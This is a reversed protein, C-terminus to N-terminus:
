KRQARLAGFRRGVYRAMALAGASFALWGFVGAPTFYSLLMAGAVLNGFGWYVNLEPPSDGVGPPKAFPSPFPEGTVGKVFHPVGNALFVGSLFQLVYAYWSM